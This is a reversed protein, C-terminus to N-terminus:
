ILFLSQVYSTMNSLIMVKCWYGFWCSSLRIVRYGLLDLLVLKFSFLRLTNFYIYLMFFMNCSAVLCLYSTRGVHEVMLLIAKINHRHRLSPIFHALDQFGQKKGHQLYRLQSSRNAFAINAFSFMQDCIRVMGHATSRAITVCTDCNRCDYIRASHLAAGTGDAHCICAIEWLNSARMQSCVMVIAIYSAGVCEIRLLYTQFEDLVWRLGKAELGFM